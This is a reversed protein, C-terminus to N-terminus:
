SYRINMKGVWSFLIHRAQGKTQDQGRACRGRRLPDEPQHSGAQQQLRELNLQWVAQPLFPSPFISLSLTFYLFHYLSLNTHLYIFLFHLVSLSINTHYVVFIMTLYKLYCKQVTCM